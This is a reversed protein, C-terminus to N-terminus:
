KFLNKIVIFNVKIDTFILHVSNFRFSFFYNYMTKNITTSPPLACVCILTTTTTNSLTLSLLYSYKRTKKAVNGSGSGGVVGGAAGGGGVAGGVMSPSSDNRNPRTRMDRMQYKINPVSLLRQDRKEKFKQRQPRIPPVAEQSTATASNGAGVTSTLPLDNPRSSQTNGSNNAFDVRKSAQQMTEFICETPANDKEESSLRSETQADLADTINSETMSERAEIGLSVPDKPPSQDSDESTCEKQTYFVSSSKPATENDNSNNMNIGIKMNVKSLQRKLNFKKWSMSMRREPLEKPPISVEERMPSKGMTGGVAGKEYDPSVPRSSNSQDLSQSQNSSM